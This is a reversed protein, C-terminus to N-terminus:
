RGDAMPMRLLLEVLVPVHERVIADTNTMPFEYTIVPVGHEKGWVKVLAEEAESEDGRLRYNVHASALAFPIADRLRHLLHLLAMSDIGGSVGVLVSDNAVIWHNRKILARFTKYLPDM